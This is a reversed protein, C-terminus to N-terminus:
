REKLLLKQPLVCPLRVLHLATFLAWAGRNGLLSSKCGGGGILTRKDTDPFLQNMAALSTSTLSTTAGAAIPSVQFRLLCEIIHLVAKM